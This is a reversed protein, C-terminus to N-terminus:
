YTGANEEVLASFVISNNYTEKVNGNKFWTVTPIPWGSVSCELNLTAGVSAEVVDRWSSIITARQADRVEISVERTDRQGHLGLRRAECTYTGSDEKSIKKWVVYKTLSFKTSTQVVNPYDNSENNRRWTINNSYNYFDVGCAIKVEDGVACNKGDNLGTISFPQPLDSIVLEAHSLKQGLNNQAHCMVFGAVTPIFKSLAQQEVDSM